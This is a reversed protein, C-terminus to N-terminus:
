KLYVVEFKLVEKESKIELEKDTAKYTKAENLIRTYQDFVFSGECAMMTSIM